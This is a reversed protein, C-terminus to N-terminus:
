AKLAQAHWAIHEGIFSSVFFYSHDYGVQRRLTLPYDSAAAAAELLEPKLQEVLFGDETGQDVLIPLRETSQPLLLHADYAAWASRDSGLYNGLAKHGWPCESPAAIPAFASVSAYQGPNRLSLVLAGHGGMSHGSIGRKDTVPFHAAILAPLEKVVYDDMRYHQSWPAETANVYFGAGTGFDWSEDEGPLNAGRPSTDPNVLILGHEAAYRQAGAKAIFNDETCTLGSLWYLVPCPGQEAQPPLYVGFKMPTGTSSSTHQWVEQWGGFSRARSVREPTDPM